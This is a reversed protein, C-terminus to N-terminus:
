PTAQKPPVPIVTELMETWHREATAKDGAEIALQGWERLIAMVYGNDSQRRAAELAREALKTGQGRLSQLKLCERAILWLAMQPKAAARQSTSFSGKAPLPDLPFKEVSEILRNVRTSSQDIQNEILSMQIALIQVALNDPQSAQVDGLADKTRAFLDPNRAVRSVLDGFASFLRTTELDRTEVLLLLDIPERPANTPTIASVPQDDPPRYAPGALLELLMEPKLEKLSTQFSTEIQKKLRDVSQTGASGAFVTAAKVFDESRVLQENTIRIAALPCGMEKIETTLGLCNQIRQYAERSENGSNGSKQIRSGVSLVLREADDLRGVKQYLSILPKMPSWLFGSFSISDPTEMASELYRTALETSSTHEMLEQGIEWLIVYNISNASSTKAKPLLAELAPIAQEPNGRRLDILALLAIGGDWNKVETQAAAVDNALADLKKQSSAITLLRTVQTHVNGDAHRVLNQGFGHWPNLSTLAPNAPLIAERAYDYMEPMQWFWNGQIYGIFQQRQDPYAAWAKKLLRITAAKRQDSTSDRTLVGRSMEQLFYSIPRLNAPVTTDLGEVLSVLENLQDTNQFTQYLQSYGTQLLRPDKAIAAKFYVIAESHKRQQALQQGLNFQFQPDNKKSEAIKATLEEVKKNDGNATAYEILTEILRQSNPANQLQTEVKKIMEPLKGSRKLVSLAQQRTDNANNMITTVRGNASITRTTTGTTVRGSFLASGSNNGSRRLLQYAIQTAVDNKGQTQYEQMLTLLVDTKNGAQRGARALVAEAQEHMGLQRMQQALQIQVSSDLRLGFLREAATRARDVNGSNVAMRLATIERNQMARQDTPALSDIIELARGPEGMKEHLRALEFKMEQNEPMAETAESLVRVAEEKEGLWWNLYGIGFHWVPRQAIPTKEDALKSQFHSVLESTKSASQYIVFMQNLLQITPRDYIENEIPVELRESRRSGSRWVLVSGSLSIQILPSQNQKKSATNQSRQQEFRAVVVPVFRDWLTVVDGIEGNQARKDMMQGVIQSQVGPQIAYQSYNITGNANRPAIGTAVPKLETLRDIVKLANKFDNRQVLGPLLMAIRSPEVSTEIAENLMQQAQDNRGSRKLEAIVMQLYPTTSNMQAGGDEVAKLCALVHDLEENELPVLYPMPDADDDSGPPAPRANAAGTAPGRWTLYTLYMGKIWLEADPLQSLKKLVHYSDNLNVTLTTLYFWDILQRVNESKEGIARRETLFTEENEKGGNRAIVNLWGLSAMRADGFDHPVWLTPQTTRISRMSVVATGSTTIVTSPSGVQGVLGVAQRIQTATQTRQTITKPPRILTQQAASAGQVKKVSAKVLLSEEDDSLNLALIAEFRSKAESSKDKSKALAVGERYLLDWNQPQEATLKQIMSLAQDNNGQNLLSDISKLVANPDKEDVVTQGMLAKAEETEGSKMLLQALRITEEKGPAIKLLQQQFKVAAELDGGAECLKVLQSLLPIDRTEETLLKELEQRASGDDGVSQYAQALCITMERNQNPERRQRELREIMRDFQNTQLYLDTLKPIISLRDNLNAAKEFARWYLEIAESTRFQEGLASALLLLGKSDTPNVRVSRRLANLGEENEGLQFCLQSFFESMESNGPAAAILDRGAQLAKDRRGLKQELTAVHKLYETRFRRDIQALKRNIDSAALLNNQAEHIRASATLIPISQPAITVAKAIARSADNLQRAAEYARALQFWHDADKSSPSHPDDVTKALDAIHENLKNIAQLERLERVLCAEREEENAALKRVVALQELAKEHKEAQALLDVRKLQLLFDKPDLQCAEANTEVAESLYGFSALVEALRALNPATKLTGDAIARWTSLAEDKRNLSHFYEGLYERYQSQDPALSVAKKYLELAEETMESQRFLEGVQSAVLPDKPRAESLRRWVTAAATKRAEDDLSKDKLILRGWERLTDSNNPEYKDLQEYQTIAESTKHEYVLMGILAHRLEKNKPAVKLGKELWQRADASSGFGSLLRSLRSIAELDNENRKIWAEYYAILGAQDDTRLYVAEIRRRVERYLWNEPLLQGLLKEYDKIAENSKGLRVKIEAVEMQFLSQRYKDKTTKALNEFRPLAAAFENEELLTTAIQEQVRADNPFQKELRNWVDLAKDTKQARQYIRGLAQYIDLLDAQAPKRSISRELAEAAKDPQGVLVLSQGLYYSALYNGSALNEAQEFAAVALADQGRLSEFLGIMMWAAGAETGKAHAATDRYSKVLRELSGREVHFGYVKDLATGRRPNKELVVVFRDIVSKEKAEDTDAEQASTACIGVIGLTLCFALILFERWRLSQM